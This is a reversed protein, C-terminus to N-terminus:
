DTLWLKDITRRCYFEINLFKGSPFIVQITNRKYTVSLLLDGGYTSSSSHHHQDRQHDERVIELPIRFSQTSKNDTDSNLMTTMSCLKAAPLKGQLFFIFFIRKNLQFNQKRVKALLQDRVNPYYFRSWVEFSICTEVTSPAQCALFM